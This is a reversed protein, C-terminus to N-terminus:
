SLGLSLCFNKQFNKFLPNKLEKLLEGQHNLFRQHDLQLDKDFLQLKMDKFM